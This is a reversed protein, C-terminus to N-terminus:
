YGWRALMRERHLSPDGLLVESSKARKFWLHTDNEWTFGIGGHIQITEAATRVYADAAAAKALSALAPWEEDGEAAASAACYAASKSSEVDLLMDACKHKIAQFSGITRGFQVRMKAYEVASDLLAQAGGAMENALAIVALDLTRHIAESADGPTGLWEAPTNELTVDALKRTADMTDVRTRSLGPADPAVLFLGTGDDHKAAVVIVDATHGDVVFRKSGTLTVGDATDSATCTVDQPDWSGSAEALALTGRLQGTALRPLLDNKQVETGAEVIAQTALVASSFFPACVLARGLEEMAIGLEVPGFGAGGYQEPVILAALGLEGALQRWVAPDFGDDSEMLRRVETAPSREAAFRRVMDRFQDQEATFAFQM